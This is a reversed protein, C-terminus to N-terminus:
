KYKTELLRINRNSLIKELKFKQDYSRFGEDSILHYIKGKSKDRKDAFIEFEKKLDNDMIRLMKWDGRLIKKVDM